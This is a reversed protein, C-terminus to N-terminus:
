WTNNDWAGWGGSDITQNYLLCNFRHKKFRNLVSNSENPKEMDKLNIKISKYVYEGNREIKM